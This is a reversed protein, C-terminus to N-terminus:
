KNNNLSNTNFYHWMYCINYILCIPHTYLSWHVKPLAEITIALELICLGTGVALMYVMGKLIIERM